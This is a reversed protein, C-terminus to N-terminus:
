VPPETFGQIERILDAVHFRDSWLSLYQWDLREAQQEVIQVIDNWQRESQRRGLNFWRVKFLITDEASLFKASVGPVIEHRPARDFLNAAYDLDAVIFVDIKFVFETELIQFSPFPEDSTLAAAIDDDAAHFTPGLAMLFREAEHRTLVTTLDLDYTTRPEGWQSSAFSGGVAYKIGSTEASAIVRAVVDLETM